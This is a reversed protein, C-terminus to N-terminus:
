CVVISSSVVRRAREVDRQDYTNRFQADDKSPGCKPNGLIPVKPDFTFFKLEKLEINRFCFLFSSTSTDFRTLISSTVFLTFVNSLLCHFNISQSRALSRASRHRKKVCWEFM